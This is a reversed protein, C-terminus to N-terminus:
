QHNEKASFTTYNKNELERAIVFFGQNRSKKQNDTTRGAEWASAEYHDKNEAFYARFNRCSPDTVCM